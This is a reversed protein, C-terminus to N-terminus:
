DGSGIYNRDFQSRDPKPPPALADSAMVLVAVFGVLPILLALVLQSVVQRKTYARVRLVFFAAVGVLALHLALFALLWTSTPM